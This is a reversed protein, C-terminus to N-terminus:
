GAHLFLGSSCVHYPSTKLLEMSVYASNSTCSVERPKELVRDDKPKRLLYSSEVYRTPTSYSVYAMRQSQIPSLYVVHQECVTCVGSVGYM